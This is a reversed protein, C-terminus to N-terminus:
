YQLARIGFQRRSAISRPPSKGGVIHPVRSGGTKANGGGVLKAKKKQTKKRKRWATRMKAKAQEDRSITTITQGISATFSFPKPKKGRDFDVIMQQISRPTMWIYRQGKVGDSARITQIDVGVHTFHPFKKKIAEAVMCHSSSRQVSDAVMEQSVGVKIKPAKGLFKATNAM